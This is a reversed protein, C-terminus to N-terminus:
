EGGADVASADGGSGVTSQEECAVPCLDEDWLPGPLASKYNAELHRLDPWADADGDFKEIRAKVGDRIGM